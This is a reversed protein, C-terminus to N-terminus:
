PKLVSLLEVDQNCSSDSASMARQRVIQVLEKNLNKGKKHKCFSLMPLLDDSKLSHELCLLNLLNHSAALSRGFDQVQQGIKM